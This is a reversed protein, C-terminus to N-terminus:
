CAILLKTLSPPPASGNRPGGPLPPDLQQSPEYWLETIRPLSSVIILVANSDIDRWCRRLVAFKTIVDVIPLGRLDLWQTDLFAFNNQSDSYRSGLEGVLKRPDSPSRVSL